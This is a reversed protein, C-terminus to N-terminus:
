RTARRVPRRPPRRAATAATTARTVLLAGEALSDGIVETLTADSAGLKM